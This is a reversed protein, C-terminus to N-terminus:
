PLRDPTVVVGVFGCSVASYGKEHHRGAFNALTSVLPLARLM